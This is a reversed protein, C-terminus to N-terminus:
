RHRDPVSLALDAAGQPAMGLHGSLTTLAGWQSPYESRHELELRIAQEKTEQNWRRAV